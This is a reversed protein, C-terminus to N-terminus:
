ETVRVPPKRDVRALKAAPAATEEALSVIGNRDCYDCLLVGLMNVMRLQELGAADKLFQKLTPFVRPNLTESKTDTFRMSPFWAITQVTADTYM